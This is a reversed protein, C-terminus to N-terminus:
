NIETIPLLWLRYPGIGAIAIYFQMYTPNKKSGKTDLSTFNCLFKKKSWKNNLSMFNCVFKWVLNFGISFQVRIKKVSVM